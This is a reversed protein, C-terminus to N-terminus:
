NCFDIDKLTKNTGNLTERWDLQDINKLVKVVAMIKKVTGQGSLTRMGREQLRINLNRMIDRASQNNIADELEEDDFLQDILAGLDEQGIAKSDPQVDNEYSKRGKYDQDFVSKPFDETLSIEFGQGQGGLEDVQKLTLYTEKAEVIFYIKDDIKIFPTKPEIRGKSKSKVRDVVICEGYISHDTTQPNYQELDGYKDVILKPNHLIFQYIIREASINTMEVMNNGRNVLSRRYQPLAEKISNPILRLFTKPNFGFSGRFFNYEVLRIALGRTEPNDYLSLWAKTLDETVESSLGRTRLELFGFQERKTERYQISDILVNGKYKEKLHMFMKPFDRLMELRHERSLDFVSGDINANAYFSMYFDSFANAIKSSVGRTHGTKKSLLQLARFFNSSAQIMHQGLLRQEVENAADRFGSPNDDTGMLIPNHCAQKLGSSILQNTEFAIDKIRNLMTDSAFPGVASSISNYRTMHTIDGFAESVEIMREFIRLAMYSTDVYSGDLNSILAEDDTKIETITTVDAPLSNILEDIVEKIDAYGGNNARKINYNTILERIIPQSCLLSVTKLSFGMRLMSTVLNATAQNINILNLIPDKVADVSAALLSALNNSVFEIGSEEILHGTEEDLERRTIEKVSDIPFGIGDLMGTYIGNLTFSLRDPILLERQSRPAMSIFAHSVNAQAFIGILKGATMNQKHFQVQTYNFILNKNTKNKDKLTDNDWALGEKYLEEVSRGTREHESQVYSILYGFQKPIEFNGPTFLQQQVQKSQLVALQTSIILNNRGDRGNTSKIWTGDDKRIFSYKMLYMKDIDFDSGSQTTIEAPLIISEGSNRPIFGKIKIPVMSYKSETPIRYGVMWLLDPNKEEMREIDIFENGAKDTVLFDEILRKDPIPAYAEYYAVGSQDAIYEDYSSYGDIPKWVRIGDKEKDYGKPLEKAEFENKSVLIQGKDNKFRIYLPDSFGWSTTQVAPGGAIEQKNIHSKIISNLLQQIRNSHIPDSLPINFEGFEDTDCAWLLEPGFRSDKRIEAKLLESIAVNTERHDSADLKFKKILEQKSDEINDAIAKFYDEKAKKVTVEKGDIVLTNEKGTVPDYDLMDAFILVRNQSGQPQRHGEFHSPVNQQIMYDTFPIEHVYDQNYVIKGNEVKYVKSLQERIEEETNGNLDIVGCLGAKVASEFQITDIGEGNLNGREDHQSQEMFDYIISLTNPLGARRLLADAMILVYESNKNQMGVKLTPLVSNYGNKPIQTYVFPKLPQWLVNLLNNLDINQHHERDTLKLYADEMRADWNGFLGMKKRYSSPCSYGQADAFNIKKFEDILSDLRRKLMTREEPPVTQLMQQKAKELNEIVESKVKDDKIYITRSLGEKNVYRNGNLDLANINCMMGPAHIQALRKQLDEANKYYAPDTITLLMIQTAGFMDNYFFEELDEETLKMKGFVKLKDNKDYSIFGEKKWQEKQIEFHNNIEIKSFKNYLEILDKYDTSNEKLEGNVFANLLEHFRDADERDEESLEKNKYEGSYYDQLYDLIVFKLGNEDFGKIKQDETCNENREKVAQIRDVEMTFVDWLYDVIVDKFNPYKQRSIREFKIYDEAPKNSMIPVRFYAWEGNEDYFYMRMMSAIYEVPSKDSYETDLYHLSTTHEFNARMKSSSRLRRLWRCRIKGNKYFWPYQLYEKQLYAEYESNKGETDLNKASLDDVLRGLYSPLVYSYYLKGAEYSVSEMELGSEKSVIDVIAKYERLNTIKGDSELENIQKLLYHLKKNLNYLNSKVGFINYLTENAPTDINLQEFLNILTKHYDKINILDKINGKSRIKEEFKNLKTITSELESLAKKDIKGDTTRLNFLGFAFGNEKAKSATLVVDSFANKNIVKVKISGNKDKFTIAYQQFYKKFNSYFQSKFQEDAKKILNDNEDYKDELLDIIQQLWPEEDLKAKLMGLMSDKKYDNGEIEDLSRAGQTYYLIKSVAEQVNLHKAIGFEDLIQNGENDYVYLTNLASKVLASLSAIVSVQRYGVQWHEISSGTLEQIIDATNEEVDALDGKLQVEDSTKGDLAIEEVTILTDYALELFAEWNEYILDAKDITSSRVSDDFNESNFVRDKVVELLRGLGITKIVDLRSMKTFDPDSESREFYRDYGNSYDNIHTIIESLKYIAAKSLERLESPAFLDSKLLANKSARLRIQKNNYGITFQPILLNGTEKDYKLKGEKQLQEAIIGENSEPNISVVKEEYVPYATKIDMLGSITYLLDATVRDTNLTIISSYPLSKVIKQLENFLQHPVVDQVEGLALEIQYTYKEDTNPLKIPTYYEGAKEVEYEKKEKQESKAANNVFNQIFEDKSLKRYVPVSIQTSNKDELIRRGTEVLTNNSRRALSNLAAIGGESLSGWTSVIGNDPIAYILAKFLEEKEDDELAEQAFESENLAKKSKTKFHVSYNNDEVDKVLEFFGKQPNGDISITMVENTIKGDRSKKSYFEIHWGERRLDQAASVFAEVDSSTKPTYRDDIKDINLKSEKKESKVSQLELGYGDYREDENKKVEAIIGFRNFLENSLWEAFEKPLAAKGLAMQSPFVIKKLGSKELSEFMELNAQMFLAKDEDTDEFQGEKHIFKGDENQQKKKVVIGFANPTVNGDKDTRIGAQNTGRGDSVNLKPEIEGFTEEGYDELYGMAHAAQANETFVYATDTNEQPEGKRYGDSQIKIKNGNNEVWGHSKALTLADKLVKKISEGDELKSGRNGAVNLTEINNKAIWAALEEATPNEIFPKHHKKAYGKTAKYGTSDKDSYFYVTGDSNVVNQETRPLYIERGTKGDQTEEDIEELGFQEVLDEGSYKDINKERILGPPMTGGTEFGLEKGVELGITDVGTQGGSIIKKISKSKDKKNSPAKKSEEVIQEAEEKAKKISTPKGSGGFEERLTMLNEAFPDDSKGFHTLLADGTSLLLEKADENQEFAERMGELMVEQRVKDWKKQQSETLKLVHRGYRKAGKPNDTNLIAGAIKYDKVMMAKRYHYYHEVTPFEIERNGIKATFPKDGFNSLQEYEKNNSNVEIIRKKSKPKEVLEFEMQYAEDLRPRVSEEFHEKTWGEKKSWEEVDIDDSLKHLPVTVKVDVTTKGSRDHFTIIDGVKCQKWYDIHKDSAYRTTATRKGELIAGITSTAKIGPRKEGNYFLTMGGTFHKPNTRNKEAVSKGEALKQPKTKIQGAELDYKDLNTAFKTLAKITGQRYMSKGLKDKLKSVNQIDEFVGNVKVSIQGNSDVKYDYRTPDAYLLNFQAIYTNGTEYTPNTDLALKYLSIQLSYKEKQDDDFTSGKNARKTKFDVVHIVGDKDIVAMDMTGAVTYNQGDYTVSMSVKLLDEDTVYVVDYGLQKQIAKRLVAAEQKLEKLQEKTLNPYSSKLNGAFFDRLVEDHTNGLPGAIKTFETEHSKVEGYLLLDRFETISYDAEVGNVKYTHNKRNFKIISNLERQKLVFNNYAKEQKSLKIEEKKPKSKVTRAPKEERLDELDEDEDDDENDEGNINDFDDDEGEYDLTVDDLENPDIIKSKSKKANAKRKGAKEQEPDFIKERAEEETLIDFEGEEMEPTFEGTATGEKVSNIRDNIGKVDTYITQENTTNTSVITINSGRTLATYIGRAKTKLSIRANSPGKTDNINVVDVAVVDYTSGQSKHDSIAYAYGVKAAYEMKYREYMEKAEAYKGRNTNWIENRHERLVEINREHRAINEKTPVLAPVLIENGKMDKFVLEVRDVPELKEDLGRGYSEVDSGMPKVRIVSGETSNPVGGERGYTDNFIILDGETFTGIPADPHLMKRILRNYKSVASEAHRDNTTYAVIKVLNPNREDRAQEFLPKLQEVMDIQSNQVILAGEDTVQSVENIDIPFVDRKDHSYDWFKDAYELVPSSEGQRVRTVLKAKPISDDTLVPSLADEKVRHERADYYRSTRIPPLQGSDGLFIVPIRKGKLAKKILNFAEENIMSSEDVIVISASEIPKAGPIPSFGGKDDERMNLMGAITRNQILFGEKNLHETKEFLVNTAKHSLAGIIVRPTVYRQKPMRRLIENVITTKGTGAKGIISFFQQNTKGARVDTIHKVAQEIAQEQEKNYVIPRKQYMVNDSLQERRDFEEYPIWSQYDAVDKIRGFKLKKEFSTEWNSLRLGTNEEVFSKQLDSNNEKLFFDFLYIKERDKKSFVNLRSDYSGGLQGFDYALNSDKPSYAASVVLETGSDYATFFYIGPFQEQLEKAYQTKLFAKIKDRQTREKLIARTNVKHTSKPVIADIDHIPDQGKRYTAGQKRYSISGTIIHGTDSLYKMANFAIGGDKKNQLEITKDLELKQWNTRDQLDLYNTEGRLISKAIDQIQQEFDFRPKNKRNAFKNFIWNFIKKLLSLFSNNEETNNEEDITEWETVIATALAQGIAEKRIKVYDIEGNKTRYVDKYEEFVKAYITTNVVDLALQDYLGFESKKNRSSEIAGMLEVFAHAFEEPFTIKNRGNEALYIVKNTIDIAGLTGNEFLESMDQEKIIYGYQKLFDRLKAELKNDVEKIFALNYKKRLDDKIKSTVEEYIQYFTKGSNILEPHSIIQTILLQVIYEDINNRRLQRTIYDINANIPKLKKLTELQNNRRERLTRSSVIPQAVYLKYTGDYLPKIVVSKEDFIRLAENKISIAEDLTNVQIPVSYRDKWVTVYDEYNNETVITPVANYNKRVYSNSPFGENDGTELRYQHTLLELASTSIDLEKARNIFEPSNLNVCFSM